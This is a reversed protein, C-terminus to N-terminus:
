GAICKGLEGVWVGDVLCTLINHNEPILTYGTLCYYRVTKNWSIGGSDEEYSGSTLPVVSPCDLFLCSLILIM